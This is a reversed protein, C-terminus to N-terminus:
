LLALYNELVSKVQDEFDQFKFRFAKETKSADINIPIIIPKGESVFTKGVAVPFHKECDRLCEGL